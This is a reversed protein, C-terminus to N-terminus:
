TQFRLGLPTDDFELNDLAAGAAEAVPEDEQQVCMQLARKALAGGTTGLAQVASVQVQVDEDKILSILHPVTSEDGLQGCANAAEFRVAPDEDDMEALVTPLWKSDSTRGMAYIASRKLNIDGSTYADSIIQEVQTSRFYAVAEIARRTVDMDGDSEIAALLADQVREADRHLLKGQQAMAGFRGLSTAAAARVAPSPDDGILRILPRIIVRDDCEWLGRTAHERVTDDGDTLCSRFIASFDLDLNDECLEGLRTLVACKRQPSMGVWATKFDILEDSILGSLPLLGAAKFPKDEDSLETLSRELTLDTENDLQLRRGTASPCDCTPKLLSGGTRTSTDTQM